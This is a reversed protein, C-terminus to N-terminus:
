DEPRGDTGYDVSGPSQDSNEVSNSRTVRANHKRRNRQILRGRGKMSFLQKATDVGFPEVGEREAEHLEM